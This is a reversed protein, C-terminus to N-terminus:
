PMLAQIAEKVALPSSDGQECRQQDALELHGNANRLTTVAWIRQACDSPVAYTRVECGRTYVQVTAGSGGITGLGAYLHVFYEYEGLASSRVTVTEYRGPYLQDVDLRGFVEGSETLGIKHRFFVHASNPFGSTGLRRFHSDLDRPENPWNLVFRAIEDSKLDPSLPLAVKTVTGERVEFDRETPCFGPAEASFHHRGPPLTVSIVRQPSQSLPKNGERAMVAVAEDLKTADVATIVLRGFLPKLDIPVRVNELAAAEVHATAPKYGELRATYATKGSNIRGIRALFAGGIKQVAVSMRKGTADDTVAIHQGGLDSGLVPDRLVLDLYAPPTMFLPITALGLGLLVALALVARARGEKRAASM